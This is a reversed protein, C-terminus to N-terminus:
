KNIVDCILLKMSQWVEDKVVEKPEFMRMFMELVGQCNGSHLFVMIKLQDM